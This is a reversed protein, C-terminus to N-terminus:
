SFEKIPYVNLDSIDKIVRAPNGVAVKDAPINGTVVSGAGILANEGIEVGPLLTVNAGIKAGARIIPGKLNSKADPSLPYLANTCVVNPGIWADAEIVTYEPIFAQSHIRVGNGLTVHHEIISQTGISVNNGITNLERIMVQHGTQFNEGVTNGAYIVTHSRINSNSGIVTPLEGPGKGRPPLGIIVFEGVNSNDGLKVNAEIKCSESLNNNNTM